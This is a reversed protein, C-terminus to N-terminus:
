FKLKVDILQEIDSLIAEDGVTIRIGRGEAYKRAANLDNKIEESIPLTMIENVAKDGFVFGVMFFKDRPLFYIIARRKDKIRYSWGYKKGPYNWESLGNPYKQLVMECIRTWLEYSQGLKEQVDENTPITAKDPFISIDTM